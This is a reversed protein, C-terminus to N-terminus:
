YDLVKVETRRNAQHQQITCSVGDACHNVLKTEGYGRAVIRDRAIGRSIIYEVASEARKQSLTMNYKNSGRSDTHSSLEIKLTPNDRMTAVLQNLIPRADARIDYKDFNYYINELVFTAGKEFIPELRLTLSITTDKTPYIAAINVSDGHFKVKEGVVRYELGAEIPFTFAGKVDSLRRSVTQGNGDLLSLQVDDLLADTKKNYTLGNLLITIKPKAFSFSYIDDLGKGGIRDSSLYGYRADKGDAMVIYGFDDSASNVPFRLNTRNKFSAKSGDASFIDLGGMGAFGNSSYYLKNGVVSPFMEDGTSNIETGANQPAGWTGDANRESYWIDVGGNGGPMDSAFYLVQEDDSLAAHGVSYRKVDNYPFANEKWGDGDKTYIMLELNHKKFTYRGSKNKETDKGPYTRTIYLINEDKNAIVPGVHYASENFVDQLVNPYQLTIGEAEKTSSYIRLFTRGTMGSVDGNWNDPEGTYLVSGQLPFTGFQSYRTNILDENKLKHVTPNAMWVVASDAGQIALRVDDQKGTRQAYAEFQKKAEAYKGMKKLVDAYNLQAQESFEVSNIVRAYWNEALSYDNIRYYCEALREMDQPKPKKKDVLKQYIGAATHYEYQQYLKDATTRLSVQEQAMVPVGSGILLFGAIILRYINYVGM